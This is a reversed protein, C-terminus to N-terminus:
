SKNYVALFITILVLILAPPFAKVAMETKRVREELALVTSQLALAGTLQGEISALQQQVKNLSDYIERTTIFVGNGGPNGVPDAM